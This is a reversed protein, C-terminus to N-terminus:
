GMRAALDHIENEDHHWYVKYITEISINVFKSVNAPSEGSNLLLTIRSHRLTHIVVDKLGSRTVANRFPKEITKFRESVDECHHFVFKCDEGVSKYRRLLFARLQPAMPTISRPKDTKKSDEKLFNIVNKNFDIQKWELELIAAKRQGTYFGIMALPEVNYADREHERIANLLIKFEEDNINRDRTNMQSPLGPLSVPVIVRDKIADNIASHLDTLHRRATTVARGESIMFKVFKRMTVSNYTEVSGTGFFDLILPLSTKLNANKNDDACVEAYNAMLEAISVQHLMRISSHRARKRDILFNALFEEANKSNSTSTTIEKQIGTQEDIYRVYFNPRNNRRILHPGNSTRAM